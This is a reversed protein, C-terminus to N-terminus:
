GKLSSCKQLPDSRTFTMHRCPLPLPPAPSPRPPAPSLCPFSQHATPYHPSPVSLYTTHFLFVVTTLPSGSRYTSPTTTPLTLPPAPTSLLVTKRCICSDECRGEGWLTCLHGEGEGGGVPYVSTGEGGGVPYVPTGEGGGVVPYVPTGEGGGVPYVPAGGLTCLHGRGGGGGPYVPTGEGGEVPYM